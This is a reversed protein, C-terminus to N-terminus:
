SHHYKGGHVIDYARYLQECVLLRAIEHPFVLRSLAWTADARKQVADSVGYAGGIVLVVSRVARNQWAEVQQSLEESSWQRGREDLLIVLADAPIRALVKQSEEEVTSRSVATQEFSVWRQLRAAYQQIAPEFHASRAKGVYLLSINM